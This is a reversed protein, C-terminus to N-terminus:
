VWPAAGVHEKVLMEGLIMAESSFICGEIVADFQLWSVCRPVHLSWKLCMALAECVVSM